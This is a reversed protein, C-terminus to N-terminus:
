PKQFPVGGPGSPSSGIKADTIATCTQRCHESLTPRRPRWCFAPGGQRVKSVVESVAGNRIWGGATMMGDAMRREDRRYPGHRDISANSERGGEPPWCGWRWFSPTAVYAVAVDGTTIAGSRKPFQRTLDKGLTTYRSLLQGILSLGAGGVLDMRDSKVFKIEMRMVWRTVGTV